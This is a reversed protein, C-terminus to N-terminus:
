LNLVLNGHGPIVLRGVRKIERITEAAQEFDVSNHYGEEAAFFEPTMVADGAVILPGWQTEVRLSCHGVAHGPSPYLQIGSPLMEEAPQFREWVAAEDPQRRQWEALGDAAMWWSAGGFLALGYRHDGHWHTLFVADIDSPHLGTRAFLMPELAAPEPSPDVLLRTEGSQLLTCTASTSRLRETEGWFKNMSLTGINVITFQVSESV